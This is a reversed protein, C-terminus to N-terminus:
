NEDSHNTELTLNVGSVIPKKEKTLEADLEAEYKKFSASAFAAYNMQKLLNILKKFYVGVAEFDSFSFATEAIEMVKNLMYRQREIPTNMDVEDFSDQQILAFDILESKWFSIHYTVPVADDGLISIQDRAELGDRVLDKARKVLPVWGPQLTTEADDIFEPYDLYKSYSALSDIAPYRKADARKQSLAYFCRAVKSTSETVPEKFNGGAPSVTGIFTVSGQKGNSLEVLGARSYFNAITAPLEVPFADQGPLEEMRNSMERLAQAWRSTSDALMLVKLGMNRYYEALTMGVYVSAERAAVPMNSTNCIITIKEDLKRGTIADTLQPFETFIEVVENAREGCAVIIVIDAESNKAIAQQLVTKGTGFPGPIYGTGGEAIPNLTDIVRLGTQLINYPRLKNKFTNIALKVPWKQRMSVSHEEGKESVLTAITASIKYDGPKSVSAVTFYGTMAFPVMIKHDVWNEQVSGLWDGAQVQDGSKVIPTFSYLVDDDLPDTVEGTGIFIGGMKSLDNQLGDYRKSLIGPGLEVELMRGTFEVESGMNITRSSEFLQASAINGNVRIVEAKLKKGESHILCIENQTVSGQAEISILNAIVGTVKGRTM